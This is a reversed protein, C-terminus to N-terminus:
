GGINGVQELSKIGHAKLLQVARAVDEGSQERMVAQDREAQLNSLKVKLAAREAILTDRETDIVSVERQESFSVAAREATALELRLAKRQAKLQMRGGLLVNERAILEPTPKKRLTAQVERLEDRIEEPDHTPNALKNMVDALEVRIDEIKRM